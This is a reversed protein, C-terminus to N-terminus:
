DTKLSATVLCNIGLTTDISHYRLSIKDLLMSGEGVIPIGDLNQELILFRASDSYSLILEQNWILEDVNKGNELAFDNEESNCTNYGVYEGRYISLSRRQCADGEWYLDCKCERKQCVGNECGYRCDCSILITFWSLLVISQISKM